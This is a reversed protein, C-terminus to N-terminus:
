QKLQVRSSGLLFALISGFQRLALQLEASKGVSVCTAQMMWLDFRSTSITILYWTTIVYSTSIQSIPCPQHKATPFKISVYCKWSMTMQVFVSSFAINKKKMYGQISIGTYITCCIVNSMSRVIILRVRDLVCCHTKWWGSCIWIEWGWGRVRGWGSKKDKKGFHDTFRHKQWLRICM